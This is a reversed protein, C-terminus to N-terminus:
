AKTLAQYEPSSELDLAKGGSRMKKTKEILALALSGVQSVNEENLKAETLEAIISLEPIGYTKGTGKMKHYEGQLARWNGQETLTELNIIKEPLGALYDKQLGKMLEDLSM